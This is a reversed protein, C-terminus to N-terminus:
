EHYTVIACAIKYAFYGVKHKYKSKTKIVSSTSLTMTMRVQYSLDDLSAHCAMVRGHKATAETRWEFKMEMEKVDEKRCRRKSRAAHGRHCWDGGRELLAQSLRRRQGGGGAAGQQLGRCRGGRMSRAIPQPALVVRLAHESIGPICTVSKLPQARAHAAESGRAVPELEVLRAVKRERQEALNALEALDELPRRPGRRRAAERPERRRLPQVEPLFCVGVDPVRSTSRSTSMHTEEVTLLEGVDRDVERAEAFARADVEGLRGVRREVRVRSRGGRDTARRKPTSARRWPPSESTATSVVVGWERM